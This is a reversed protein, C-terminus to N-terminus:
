DDITDVHSIQGMEQQNLTEPGLCPIEQKYFSATHNGVKNRDGIIIKIQKQRIDRKRFMTLKLILSGIGGAADVALVNHYSM